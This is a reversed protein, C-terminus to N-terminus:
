GTPVLLDGECQVLESDRAKEIRDAATCFNRVALGGRIDEQQGRCTKTDVRSLARNDFVGDRAYFSGARRPHGSQSESRGVLRRYQQLRTGMPYKSVIVVQHFGSHLGEALLLM